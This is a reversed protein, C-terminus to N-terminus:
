DAAMGGTRARRGSRFRSYSSVVGFATLALKELRGLFGAPAGLPSSDELYSSHVPSRSRLFACDATGGIRHEGGIMTAVIKPRNGSGARDFSPQTNTAAVLCANQATFCDKRHFRLAGAYVITCVHSNPTTQGPSRKRADAVRHFTIASTRRQFTRHCRQLPRDFLAVTFALYFLCRV